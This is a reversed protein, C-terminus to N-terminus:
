PEDGYKAGHKKLLQMCEWAGTSLDLPTKGDKDKANIDAGKEILLNATDIRGSKAAWHLPTSGTENKAHINAGKEILLRATGTNGKLAACHLPTTGNCTQWTTGGDNMANVDAGKDILLRAVDTRGKEAASHLPTSGQKNKAHIDAGNEILLRAIDANAAVFLPAGYIENMANVDAGADLLLSVKKLDGEYARTWLAHNYQEPALEMSKIEWYREATLMRIDRPLEEVRACEDKARSIRYYEPTEQGNVGIYFADKTEGIAHIGLCDFFANEEPKSSHLFYWLKDDLYCRTLKYTPTFSVDKECSPMCLLLLAILGWTFTSTKKVPLEVTRMM